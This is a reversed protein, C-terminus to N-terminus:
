FTVPVSEAQVILNGDVDEFLVVAKYSDSGSPSGALDGRRFNTHYVADVTDPSEIVVQNQVGSGPGFFTHERMVANDSIRVLRVVVTHDYMFAGDSTVGSRLVEFKFRGVSNAPQGTNIQGQEQTFAIGYKVSFNSTAQGTNGAGDTAEATLTYSGIGSRNSSTFAMASSTGAAGAGGVPTFTGSATADTGAPQPTNDTLAIAQNSVAGGSSSIWASISDVGGGPVPDNARIDVSINGLIHSSSDAPSDITVVPEVTDSDSLPRLSLNYRSGSGVGIGIGNAQAKMVVVYDGFADPDVAPNNVTVDVPLTEGPYFEHIAPTIVFAGAIQMGLASDLPIQIPQPLAVGDADGVMEIGFVRIEAVATSGGAPFITGGGPANVDFGGSDPGGLSGLFTSNGALAPDYTFPGTAAKVGKRGQADVGGAAALM